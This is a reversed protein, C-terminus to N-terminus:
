KKKQVKWGDQLANFIFSSVIIKKHESLKKDIELEM